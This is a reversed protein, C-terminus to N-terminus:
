HFDSLVAVTFGNLQEPWRQLHFEQRVIRPLNPALLIGDGVIAVAGAAAARQLFQRRTAPILPM